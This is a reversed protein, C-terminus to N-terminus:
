SAADVSVTIGDPSTVEFVSAGTETFYNDWCFQAADTHSMADVQITWTVTYENM